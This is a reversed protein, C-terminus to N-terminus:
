FKLHHDGWVQMHQRTQEIAQLRAAQAPSTADGVLQPQGSGAYRAFRHASYPYSPGYDVFLQDGASVPVTLELQAYPNIEDDTFEMNGPVRHNVRRALSDIPTADFYEGHLEMVNAADDNPFDDLSQYYAGGGVDPTRGYEDMDARGVGDYETGTYLEM